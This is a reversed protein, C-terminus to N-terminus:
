AERMLESLPSVVFANDGYCTLFCLQIDIIIIISEPKKRHLKDAKPSVKV